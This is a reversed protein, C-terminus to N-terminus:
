SDNGNLHFTYTTRNCLKDTQAMAMRSVSTLLLLLISKKHLPHRTSPPFIVSKKADMKTILSISGIRKNNRGCVSATSHFFQAYGWKIHDKEDNKRKGTQTEITQKDYVIVCTHAHTIASAWDCVTPFNIENVFVVCVIICSSRGFNSVFITNAINRNTNRHDSQGFIYMAVLVLAVPM